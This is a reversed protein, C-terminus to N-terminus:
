RRPVSFIRVVTHSDSGFYSVGALTRGDSSLALGHPAVGPGSGTGDLTATFIPAPVGLPDVELNRGTADLGTALLNAQIGSVAVASPYAQGPYIIGDPLLTSAHFEEFDYPAGSAAIVRRGDPSVVIGQGNALDVARSSAAVRPRGSTVDLRYLAAPSQGDEIVFLSRSAGPSTALDPAYYNKRFTRVAGSVPNVSALAIGGSGSGTTTWLRKGTLALWLPRLLGAAVPVPHSRPNALDIRVVAGATNETAYLFRGSVVLGWAGYVNGVTRVVRGSFAVIKIVNAAPGSIIVHRRASDLVVTGFGIRGLDRTTSALSPAPAALVVVTACVASM